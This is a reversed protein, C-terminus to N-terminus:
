EPKKGEKQEANDPGLSRATKIITIVIATVPILLFVIWAIRWNDLYTGMLMFAAVALMAVIGVAGYPDKKKKIDIVIATIPVALFVLWSVSWFHFAFSLIFFVVASAVVMLGIISGSVDKKRIIDIIISAAPIVLFVLWGPHWKNFGFGLLFFAAAALVAILGIVSGSFDKNKVVIDGVIATVPVLLFVMWAYKWGDTMFGVIFFCAAALVAVLGTILGALENKKSM